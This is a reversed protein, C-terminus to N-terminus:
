TLYVSYSLVDISSDGRTKADLKIEHIHSRFNTVVAFRGKRSIGLWTGREAPDSKQVDRGLVFVYNCIM